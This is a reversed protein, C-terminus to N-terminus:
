PHWTALEPDFVAAACHRGKQQDNEQVKIQLAHKELRQLFTRWWRIFGGLARSFQGLLAQLLRGGFGGAVFSLQASGLRLHILRLLLQVFLQLLAFGSGNGLGPLMGVRGDFQGFVCSAESTSAALVLRAASLSDSALWIASDM